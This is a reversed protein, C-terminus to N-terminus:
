GVPTPSARHAGIHYSAAQDLHRWRPEQGTPENPDWTVAGGCVTCTSDLYRRALGDLEILAVSLECLESLTLLRVQAHAHDRDGRLLAQLAEPARNVLPWSATM